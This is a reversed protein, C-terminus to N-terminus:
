SRALRHMERRTEQLCSAVERLVGAAEMVDVSEPTHNTMYWYTEAALTMARAAAAEVEPDPTNPRAEEVPTMPAPPTASATPTSTRPASATPVSTRPASAATTSAAKRNM